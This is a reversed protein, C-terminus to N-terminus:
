SNILGMLILSLSLYIYIDVMFNIFGLVITTIFMDIAIEPDWFLPVTGYVAMNQPIKGSILAQLKPM